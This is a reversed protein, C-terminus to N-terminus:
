LYEQPISQIIFEIPSKNCCTNIEDMSMGLMDLLCCALLIRCKQTLWLLEKGELAKTLKEDNDPILHSYKDRSETLAETDISIRKLVDIAKFGKLLKKIGDEYKKIDKGDKKNVFRKFYGDLAQAVILFDNSEFPADYRMSRIMHGIIPQAQEHKEHWQRYIVPIRCNLENFKILAVTHPNESRKPRFLLTCYESEGRNKLQITEPHQPCFVAVSFFESFEAIFDLFIRLSTQGSSEIIFNTKETVSASYRTLHYGLEVWLSVSIGNDLDITTLNDGREMNLDIITHDGTDKVNIKQQFAWNRLYPFGVVSRQFCPEDLSSIHEGILIYNVQFVYKMYNEARIMVCNFLSFLQGGLARGWIVDYSEYARFSFHETADFIIELTSHNDEGGYTLVGAVKQDSFRRCNDPIWWVAPYTTTKNM